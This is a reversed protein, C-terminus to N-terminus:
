CAPRRSRAPAGRRHGRRREAGPDAPRAGGGGPPVGPVPGAGRQGTAAVGVVDFGAAQLDREVADRWMPHDDVVMVRIPKESMAGVRSGSLGGPPRLYRGRRHVLPPVDDGITSRTSRAPSWPRGASRPSARWRCGPGPPRGRWGRGGRPRSSSRWGSRGARAPATGAFADALDRHEWGCCSCSPGVPRRRAPRPPRLRSRGPGAGAGARRRRGDAVVRDPRGPRERRGLDVADGRWRAPRAAPTGSRPRVGAGPVPARQPDDRARRTRRPM